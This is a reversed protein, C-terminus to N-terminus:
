DGSVTNRRDCLALNACEYLVRNGDATNQPNEKTIVKLMAEGVAIQQGFGEAKLRTIIQDKREPDTEVVRLYLVAASLPHEKMLHLAHSNSDTLDFSANLHANPDFGMSRMDSFFIRHQLHSYLDSLFAQAEQMNFGPPPPCNPPSTLEWGQFQGSAQLKLHFLEHAITEEDAGRSTSFWITPVGYVIEERGEYAQGSSDTVNPESICAIQNKTKEVVYDALAKVSPRLKVGCLESNPVETKSTDAQGKSRCSCVLVVLPLILLVLIRDVKM